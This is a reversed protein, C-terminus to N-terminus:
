AMSAALKNAIQTGVLPPRLGAPTAHLLDRAFDQLIVHNHEPQAGFMSFRVLLGDAIEGRFATRYRDLRQQDRDVPLFEGLRAWYLIAERRDPGTAVLTRAPLFVAPALPLQIAKDDSIELGFAPYCVEPRHLQLENSQTDGHAMLAMVQQGNDANVYIREVMEDYLQAALSGETRASVLDGVDRASWPGFTRPAVDALKARGLLSVHRRPTLAYASGAGALCVASLLLDRRNIM